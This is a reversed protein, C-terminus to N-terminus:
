KNIYNIEIQSLENFMEFDEVQFALWFYRKTIIQTECLEFNKSNTNALCENTRTYLSMWPIESIANNYLNKTPSEFINFNGKEVPNLCSTNIKQITNGYEDLFRIELTKNKLDTFGKTRCSIGYLIVEDKSKKKDSGGKLKYLSAKAENLVYKRINPKRGNLDIISIIHDQTPDFDSFNYYSFPSPDITIKESSIKSLIKETNELYGDRLSIEFPILITKDPVLKNKTFFSYNKNCVDDYGFTRMCLSDSYSGVNSGFVLIDNLYTKFDELGVTVNATIKYIGNEESKEIIKFLTISGKSYEQVDYSFSESEKVLANTIEEQYKFYSEADMFSGVVQTLANFAANKVANDVTEGFGKAIVTEKDKKSPSIFSKVSIPEGVNIDIVEADQLPTVIKKFFGIKSDSEKNESVITAFLGKKIKKSGSGEEKVYTKFEERRIDFRVKVKFKSGEKKTSLVEYSKISGQTNSRIKETFTETENTLDDKFNYKSKYSTKTDIFDGTVLNLANVGADRVAAEIDRGFGITIVTEINDSNKKQEQAILLNSKNETGTIPFSPIFFLFVFFGLIKKFTSIKM